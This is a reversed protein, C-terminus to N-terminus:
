QRMHSASPPSSNVFSDNQWISLRLKFYTASANRAVAKSTLLGEESCPALIVHTVIKVRFMISIIKQELEIEPWLIMFQQVLWILPIM